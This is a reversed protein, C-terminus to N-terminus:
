PKGYEVVRDVVHVPGNTSQIGATRVTTVRVSQQFGNITLFSNRDNTVHLTMIGEPNAPDAGQPLLTHVTQLDPTLQEFSYEGQIILYFLWNRVQEKPYDSWKTAAVGNVLYRGFYCDNTVKKSAIRYVADNHLLIYTRGPQMYETSDIGAYAIAERMRLFISDGKVVSRQKLYEWCTKDIHPDLITSEYNYDEQLDLGAVSCAQFAALFFFVVLVLFRNKLKKEM